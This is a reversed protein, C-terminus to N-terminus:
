CQRRTLRRNAEKVECLLTWRMSPEEVLGFKKGLELAALQLLFTQDTPEGETATFGEARNFAQLLVLAAAKDTKFIAAFVYNKIDELIEPNRALGELLWSLWIGVTFDALGSSSSGDRADHLGRFIHVICKGALPGVHSLEMWSLLHLTFSKWLSLDNSSAISPELERYKRAADGLDVARKTLFHDLCQLGSKTLLKASQRAVISVLTELIHERVLRGTEPCPNQTSSVVLFDLVLRLARHPDHEYWELYFHFMKQSLEQTFAWERLAEDDSKACQQIFGCLKVCAQGSGSTQRSTSADRM